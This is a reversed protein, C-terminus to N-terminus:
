RINCRDISFYATVVTSIRKLAHPFLLFTRSCKELGNDVARKEVLHRPQKGDWPEVSNGECEM